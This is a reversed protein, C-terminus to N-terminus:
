GWHGEVNADGSYEYEGKKFKEVAEKLNGTAGIIVKIKAAGLTRFANPGCNGTIVVEAGTKSVNQATQIGAGSAAKLNLQNDVFDFTDNELDYVLIYPARGFRPDVESEITKNSATIAIKM